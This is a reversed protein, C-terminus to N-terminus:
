LPDDAGAPHPGDVFRGVHPQRSTKRDLHQESFDGGLAIEEFPKPPLCLDRAGGTLLVDDFRVIEIQGVVPQGVDDHLQEVALRQARTELAVFHEGDLLGYAHHYPRQVSDCRRM